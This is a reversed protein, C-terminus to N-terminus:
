YWVCTKCFGLLNCGFECFKRQKGGPKMARVEENSSSPDGSLKKFSSHQEATERSIGFHNIIHEYRSVWSGLTLDDLVFDCTWLVALYRKFSM